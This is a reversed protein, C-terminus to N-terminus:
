KLKSESLKQALPYGLAKSRRYDKKSNDVQGLREYALGRNYEPRGDKFAKADIVKTLHEVADEYQKLKIEIIGLNLLTPNNSPTVALIKLFETKAETRKNAKILDFANKYWARIDNEREKGTFREKFSILSSDGPNAKIGEEVVAAARVPDKYFEMIRTSKAKWQTIDQPEFALREDYTKFYNLTDGMARYANLLIVYNNKIAPYKEFGQKAYFVASDNNIKKQGFIIAKLMKSEYHNPAKQISKDLHSLALDMRGESMAYMGKVHENPRGVGAIDFYGDLRDIAQEYSYAYKATMLNKGSTDALIYNQHVYSQYKFFSVLTACLVVVGIGALIPTGVLWDTTTKKGEKQETTIFTLILAAIVAFLGQIPTREMPFNLAADVGYAMLALMVILYMWREEKSSNGIVLRIIGITLVALMAFYGLSGLIGVEALVQLFDSHARLPYLFKDKRSAAFYKDKNALKWNGIGVGTLPHSLFDDKAMEFYLLRGSDFAVSSKTSVDREVVKGTDDVSPTSLIQAYSNASGKEIRNTNTVILFGLLLIGLIPLIPYRLKRSLTSKGVGDVVLYVLLVVFILLASLMASRAGIYFLATFGIFLSLLSVIKWRGVHKLVGWIVFPLQVVLAAATVNRNGFLLETGKLLRTSRLTSMNEFFYFVIQVGIILVVIHVVKIVFEFLLKPASKFLFYLNLTAGLTIAIRALDKVGESINLAGILSLVSMILFFAYAGFFVLTSRHKSLVGIAKNGNLVFAFGLVTV